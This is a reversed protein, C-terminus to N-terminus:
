GENSEVSLFSCPGSHEYFVFSCECFSVGGVRTFSWLSDGPPDAFGALAADAVPRAEAGTPLRMVGVARTRSCPL